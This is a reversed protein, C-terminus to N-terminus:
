FLEISVFDFITFTCTYQYASLLFDKYCCFFSWSSCCCGLQKFCRLIPLNRQTAVDDEISTPNWEKSLVGPGRILKRVRQPMSSWCTSLMKSSLIWRIVINLLSTLVNSIIRMFPRLHCFFLSFHDPIWSAHGSSHSAEEWMLRWDAPLDGWCFESM